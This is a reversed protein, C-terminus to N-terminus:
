WRSHLDPFELRNAQKAQIRQIIEKTELKALTKSIVSKNSYVESPLTFSNYCKRTGDQM